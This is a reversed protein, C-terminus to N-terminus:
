PRGVLRDHEAKCFRDTMGALYDCVVRPVGQEEIRTAFRPPLEEPHDHYADFLARVMRRGATDMKVVEDHRYVRKSLFSELQVLRADTDASLMVLPSPASKVQDPSTMKALAARSTDIANRLVDHLLGDLVARRVAFVHSVEHRAAVDEYAMQWLEVDKLDRLTVM